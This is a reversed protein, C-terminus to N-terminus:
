PAPAVALTTADLLQLVRELVVEPPVLSKVFVDKRTLRMELRQEVDVDTATYVALGVKRFQDTGHLWSILEGGSGDPLALDLLIVAPLSVECWERAEAWSAAVVSAVGREALGASMVGALDTDDEVILVVPGVTARLASEVTSLLSRHLAARDIFAHVVDSLHARDEVTIDGFLIIAVTATGAGTRLLRVVEWSDMEPLDAGLVVGRPGETAAMEVGARGTAVTGARYGAGDLM